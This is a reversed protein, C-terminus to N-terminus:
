QNEFQIAAANNPVVIRNRQSFYFEADGVTV